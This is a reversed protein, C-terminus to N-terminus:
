SGEQFSPPRCPRSPRFFTAYERILRLAEDSLLHIRQYEHWWHPNTSANATAYLALFYYNSERNDKRGLEKLSALVSTPDLEPSKTPQKM